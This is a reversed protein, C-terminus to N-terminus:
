GGELTLKRLGQRLIIKGMLFIVVAWLAQQGIALLAESGLLVGTFIEISTNLMSPFPTIHCITQFWVPFLRIPFIMGSFLQVVAGMMRLIGSADKSWIASLNVTIIWLHCVSWSALLSLLFLGWQVASNPLTVPFFLMWIGFLLIGRLVLNVISKGGYYSLWYRYFGQPKLLQLAIQGSYITQSIQMSGFVQLFMLLSQTLPVYTLAAAETMGNLMGTMGYIAAMVYYRFMGWALNTMAGNFMALRYTLQEKIALHITKLVARM